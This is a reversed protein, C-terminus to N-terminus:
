EAAEALPLDERLGGDDLHRLFAHRHEAEAPVFGAQEPHLERELGAVRPGRLAVEAVDHDLERKCRRRFLLDFDGGPLVLGELHRGRERIFLARLAFEDRPVRLADAFGLAASRVAGFPVTSANKAATLFPFL